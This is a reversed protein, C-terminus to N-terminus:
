GEKTSELYSKKEKVVLKEFEAKIDPWCKQVFMRLENPYTMKVPGNCLDSGYVESAITSNSLFISFEMLYSMDELNNVEDDVQSIVADIDEGENNHKWDEIEDRLQRMSADHDFERPGDSLKGMFYDDDCQIVFEMMSTNKGRSDWIHGWTGYDSIIVFEPDGVIVTAWASDQWHFHYANIQKASLSYPNSM